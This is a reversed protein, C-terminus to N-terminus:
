FLAVKVKQDGKVMFTFAYCKKIVSIQEVPKRLASIRTRKTTRIKRYRGNMIIKDTTGFSVSKTVFM